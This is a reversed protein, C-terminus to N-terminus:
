LNHSVSYGNIFIRGIKAKKTIQRIKTDPHLAGDGAIMCVDVVDVGECDSVGVCVLVVIMGELVATVRACVMVCDGVDTGEDPPFIVTEKM